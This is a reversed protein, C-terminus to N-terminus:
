SAVERPLPSLLSLLIQPIPRIPAPSEATRGTLQLPLRQTM